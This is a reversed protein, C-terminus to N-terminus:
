AVAEQKKSEAEDAEEEPRARDARIFEVHDVRLFRVFGKQVGREVFPRGALVARLVVARGPTLLPECRAVEAADEIECRWPTPGADGPAQLMVDFVLKKRSSPGTTWASEAGHMLYGTGLATIM